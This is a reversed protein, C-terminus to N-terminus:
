YFWSYKNSFTVSLYFVFLFSRIPVIFFLVFFVLGAWVDPRSWNHLPTMYSLNLFLAQMERDPTKRADERTETCTTAITTSLQIFIGGGGGGAAFGEPKTWGWKPNWDSYLHPDKSCCVCVFATKNTKGMSFQQRIVATNIQMEYSLFFFNYVGFTAYFLQRVQRNRNLTQRWM